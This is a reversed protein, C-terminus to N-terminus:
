EAIVEIEDVILKSGPCGAFKAGNKSPSCIISFKYKKSPDYTELYDLKLEFPAFDTQSHSNMVAMAVIKVGEPINTQDFLTEGDLTMEDTYDSVEYLVATLACSDLMNPITDATVVTSMGSGTITTTCYTEGATYKYYGKVTTPKSYFPIGFHTSKLTNSVNLIFKGMFLSAATVKPIAAIWAWLGKSDATYLLVGKGEYGNEEVSVPYPGDDWLNMNILMYGAMNSTAWGKELPDNFGLKSGDMIAETWNSFSYVSKKVCSVIYETETSGDESTVTFTVSGKSFDVPQGSAPTVKAGESVTITPILNALRGLTYTTDSAPVEFTINTGDIKPQVTILTDTFIMEKILAEKNFATMKGKFSVNVTQVAFAETVDIKLDANKDEITGSVTVKVENIPAILTVPVQTEILSIVKGNQALPINNVIIDGLNLAVGNVPFSFDNLVLKLKNEGAKSLIINEISTSDYKLLPIEVRLDGKYGGVVQETLDVVTDDDDKCSVFASLSCLLLFLYILNKKM